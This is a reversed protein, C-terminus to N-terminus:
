DNLKSFWSEFQKEPSLDKMNNKIDDPLEPILTWLTGKIPIGSPYWGWYKGEEKPVYYTVAISGTWNCVIVFKGPPPLEIMSDIWKM